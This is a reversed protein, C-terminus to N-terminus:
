KVEAVQVRHNQLEIDVSSALQAITAEESLVSLDLDINFHQNVAGFIRMLALSTGGVDFFDDKTGINKRQLVEEWIALITQETSPHPFSNGNSDCQIGIMQRLTERDVKGHPTLPIEPLVFYASPRMHVPLEAAAREALEDPLLHITQEDISFAPQPVVYAVLRADGDGYDHRMVVASSIKPHGSLCHEVETPEIRFGRVKMQDDNRGLYEFEGNAMRVARDGSKYLRTENAGISKFVFREATLEPRNLYGRGLGPGAIYLEGPTGDPALEGASNLLYLQLDPIPVGIPSRHPHKLDASLIPKYTVHVTTETVGYMNVLKPRQNGYRQIWPELMKVDLTEGGFIVFRLKFDPTKERAIDAAVLQRFASPTQNLITVDKDKLLAHFQVPSRSIEHPVIVVCGGYLLAGWIEWVSFDFSISHFLTWVDNEDFQFWHATQEFLRVVNRHEVMVGKPVGTSGSTYIVYAINTENGEGAPLPETNTEALSAPEDLCVIAAKCEALSQSVRAVTVIVDVASDKLLFDIRKRPYAPDIPVYGGGAKLIALLGIILDISRDICLGVLVDPGVGMNQLKRALQNAQADLQAYTIEDDLTRVAPREPAERARLEFIEHLRKSPFM